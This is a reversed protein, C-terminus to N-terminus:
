KQGQELYECVARVTPEYYLRSHGLRTLDVKLAERLLREATHFMPGNYASADDPYNLDTADLDGHIIGNRVTGFMRFWHELDTCLHQRGRQDTFVRSPQEDPSWLLHRTAYERSEGVIVSEFLSRLASAAKATSSEQTLTEFGTKLLVLRDEWTISPTNRWAKGLWGIVRAIRAADTAAPTQYAGRVTDYVATAVTSDINIPGLPLRLEEPPTITLQDGIQHGGALTSVVYGSQQAVHGDVLDVPWIQLDANDTTVALAAALSGSRNDETWHPNEDLAAFEIARTLATFEAGIPPSGDCGRDVRSVVTPHEIPENGPGRFARVFAAALEHFRPSQWSGAYQNLPTLLWDGIRAEDRLPLYPLFIAYPTTRDGKAM